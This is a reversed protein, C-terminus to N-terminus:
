RRHAYARAMSEACMGDCVPAPRSKHAARHAHHAKDDRQNNAGQARASQGSFNSLAIVTAAALLGITVKRSM